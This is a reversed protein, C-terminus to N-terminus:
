LSTDTGQGRGQRSCRTVMCWLLRRHWPWAESTTQAKGLERALLLKPGREWM